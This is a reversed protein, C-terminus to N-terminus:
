HDMLERTRLFNKGWSTLIYCNYVRPNKQTQIKSNQNQIRPRPNQPKSKPTQNQIRSRPNQPKSKPTTIENRTGIIGGVVLSVRRRSQSSDLRAVAKKTWAGPHRSWRLFDFTARSWLEGFRFNNSPRNVPSPGGEEFELGYRVWPGVSTFGPSLM